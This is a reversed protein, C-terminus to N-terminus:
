PKVEYRAMMGGAMHDSIHCHYLWVGPNDPIMDVTEMQAPSLAVVDTRHGNHIVDNGHWHPSHFNTSDGLTVLYWRVREGKKMTMMPMSGFMFGNITYRLNVDAFGTGLGGEITGEPGGLISERKNVHTPDTTYTRINDDLYWSENENLNIMMTVFEKDVDVPAGDARAKGNATIIIPGFLGSAVDRMEDVHSHYLWIISTPDNPGPGAREPVEWVYLHSGGPPVAAGQHDDGLTGDNYDTGESDKQYLVGHSHISYPRSTRNRFFVKIVDGVEARIIPGLIGLYQQESTRPVAKSFTADTYERYIAKKYKRGIKTPGSEMYNKEFANFPRAMAENQGSPAYDWTVEEAAVFYTRVRSRHFGAAQRAEAGELQLVATVLILLAVIPVSFRSRDKSSGIEDFVPHRSNSKYSLLMKLVGERKSFYQLM